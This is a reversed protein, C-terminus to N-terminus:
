NKIHMTQMTENGKDVGLDITKFSEIPAYVKNDLNIFGPM